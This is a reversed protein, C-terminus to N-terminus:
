RDKKVKDQTMKTKDDYTISLTEFFYPIEHKTLGVM